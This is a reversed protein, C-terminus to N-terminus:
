FITEGMCFYTKVASLLAADSTSYSFILYALYCLWTLILSYILEAVFGLISLCIGFIL